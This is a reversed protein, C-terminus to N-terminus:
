AGPGPNAARAAPRACLARRVDGPMPQWVPQSACIQQLHDLMDDLMRHAQARTDDWDDPDLSSPPKAMLRRAVQGARQRVAHAAFADFIKQM